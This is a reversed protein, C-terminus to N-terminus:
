QSLLYALLANFAEQDLSEGFHDPMLTYRSPIQEVIRAKAISFENGNMDAFVLVKGEDRRFLGSRVDEDRTKITYTRFAESINRNPDLIKTALAEAGWNSVGSLQPGIMGGDNGVRHCSKCNRNFVMVGSQSFTDAAAFGELRQQILADRSEDITPIAATLREYTALQEDSIERLLQEKVRPDLLSRAMLAGAQVEQFLLERGQESSALVFAVERQLNPPLRRPDSLTALRTAEPLESHMRILQRQLQRSDDPAEMLGKVLPVYTAPNLELLAQASAARLEWPASPSQLLQEIKTLNSVLGYARALEVALTLQDELESPFGEESGALEPDSSTPLPQSLLSASLDTGWTRLLPSASIGRQILGDWLAQFREFEQEVGGVLTARAAQIAPSLESKPIFRVIHQWRDFRDRSDTPADAMYQYLFRGAAENEVGVMVDALAARQRPTWDAQLAARMVDAQRLLNRMCLRLSYRLHTDTSPIGPHLDVLLALSALEPYNELAEVAARQVHPNEDQLGQQLRPFYISQDDPAERIIRFAHTRIQPSAHRTAALLTEAKLGGLRHLVWLALVHQRFSIPADVVERLALVASQGHVDVLQDAATMRVHINDHDLAEILEEVSARALNQSVHAAGQYTIRWIRGRVKDRKPHDLPVEYHGIISNYFDAIYLAGDPGLKVDVPRFWPDKSKVFDEEAQAVPTAGEFHFSNRHVRCTVVDGIFFNQQYTEPFQTAGYYALGSLATSESGFPKTDPGFGIGVEKKGFHPYDAGRILQYIPSTHCDTSYLYGWEDFALGFPNVQGFTTQEVRSGDLQFRFTNGSTMSISDGDTGAITSTNTFGHCTYVWGDYGRTLNNVMGHTDRHGFPGLLPTSQDLQGDGNQDQFHYLYPISYAMAGTALPLLGIPINLTDVVDTFRDAQGDGDTDELITLRDGGAGPRAPFPYEHSQTVWLRGQADFAINMPKGIDPESAFLEIEFGEPLEFAKQEEEPTRASTSRIHEKFHQGM